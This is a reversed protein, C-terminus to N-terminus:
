IEVGRHSCKKKEEPFKIQLEILNKISLESNFFLM